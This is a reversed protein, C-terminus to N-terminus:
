FHSSSSPKVKTFRLPVPKEKKKAAKSLTSASASQRSPVAKEFTVKICNKSRTSASSSKSAPASRVSMRVPSRNREMSAQPFLMSSTISSTSDNDSEETIARLGSNAELSSELLLRSGSGHFTNVSDSTSPPRSDDYESYIREQSGKSTSTKTASVSHQRGDTRRSRRFRLSARSSVAEGSSGLTTPITPSRTTSVPYETSTVPEVNRSPTTSALYRTTITPGVSSSSSAPMAYRYHSTVTRNSSRRNTSPSSAQSTVQVKPNNMDREYKAQGVCAGAHYLTVLQEQYGKLNEISNQLLENNQKMDCFDREVSGIRSNLKTIERNKQTITELLQTVSHSRLSKMTDMEQRLAQREDYLTMIESKQEAVAKELKCNRFDLVHMCIIYM